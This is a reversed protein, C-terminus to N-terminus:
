GPGDGINRLREQYEETTLEGRAYREALIQRAQGATPSGVAPYQGPTDGTRGGISRVALTILLVIGAVLLLGFLWPWIMGFGFGGNGYGM